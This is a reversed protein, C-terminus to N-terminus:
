PPLNILLILKNNVFYNKSFLSQTGPDECDFSYDHM